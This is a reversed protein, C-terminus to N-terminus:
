ETITIAKIDDWLSGILRRVSYLSLSYFVSNNAWFLVLKLVFLNMTSYVIKVAVFSYILNENLYRYMFAFFWGKTM